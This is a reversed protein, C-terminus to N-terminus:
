PSELSDVHHEIAEVLQSLAGLDDTRRLRAVAVRQALRACNEFPATVGLGRLMPEGYRAAFWHPMLESWASRGTVPVIETQPGRDLLYIAGLPVFETTATPVVLARKDVQDHLTPITELSRGSATVTTPWVKMLPTGPVLGPRDASWRFATVDDAILAHGHDSMALALTSKGWGKEGVFVVGRGGVEAASGHFVGFGRQHLLLALAAGLIYLRLVDDGVGEHRDIVMERGDRILFRGVRKWDMRISTGEVVFRRGAGTADTADPLGNGSVSGLRVHVDPQTAPDVRTLEPLEVETAFHLGYARYHFTM